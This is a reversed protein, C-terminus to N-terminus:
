AETEDIVQNLFRASSQLNKKEQDSLPLEIVRAIGTRALVSVKSLCVGIDEQYSSVPQVIREDFLIAKCISAAVSGIGYATVGKNDIIYTAKQKTDDAVAQRDIDHASESQDLPVGAINANSWAVQAFNLLCCKQADM